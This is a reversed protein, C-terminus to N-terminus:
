KIMEPRITIRSVEGFTKSYTIVSAGRNSVYGGRTSHADKAAMTPHQETVMLGDEKQEVHHLHGTHAYSYKTRGFTDRYISAFVKSLEAMKKKHGHHFFLSTLGWEFMYFPTRTNDVTVRPEKSYKDAFLARLWISSTIDHNGEAMIIHVHKHKKLLLGIVQRLAVIAVGVIESYRSDTDLLNGSTPTVPMVSDYHLFDGLQCLIATDSDPSAVIAKAFWQTLFEAAKDTNWEEGGCEEAISLQGLHYDTLIYVSALDNVVKKPAKVPTAKPIDGTLAEAAEQIIELQRDLDINTKVWQSKVNGDAGYLTSVGKLMQGDPVLPDLHAVSKDKQRRRAGELRDRFTTRALGLTRAAVTQNRESEEYVRLTEEDDIM